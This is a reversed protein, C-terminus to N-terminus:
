IKLKKEATNNSKDIEMNLSFYNLSKIANEYLLCDKELANMKYDEKHSELVSIMGEIAEKTKNFEGKIMKNLARNTWFSYKKRSDIHVDNSCICEIFHDIFTEKYRNKQAINDVEEFIKNFLKEAEEGKNFSFFLHLLNFGEKDVNKLSVGNDILYDILPFPAPNMLAQFMLNRGTKDVIHIDLEPYISVYNIFNEGKIGASSCSLLDFLVTRNYNNPKWIDKTNEIVYEKVNNELRPEKDDKGGVLRIGMIYQFFNNGAADRYSYDLGFKEIEKLQEIKTFYRSHYKGNFDIYHQIGNWIDKWYPSDGRRDPEILIEFLKSPEQLDRIERLTSSNYFM